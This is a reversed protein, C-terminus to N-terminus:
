NGHDAERVAAGNEIVGVERHLITREAAVLSDSAASATAAATGADEVEDIDGQAPGYVIRGASVQDQTATRKRRVLGKTAGVGGSSGVTLAVDAQAGASAQQIM